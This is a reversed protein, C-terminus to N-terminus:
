VPVQKHLSVTGTHQCLAEGRGVAEMDTQQGKLGRGPRHSGLWIGAGGLGVSPALRAGVADEAFHQYDIRRARTYGPDDAPHKRIPLRTSVDPNQCGSQIRLVQKLNACHSSYHCSM